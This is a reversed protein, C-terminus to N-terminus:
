TGKTSSSGTVRAKKCLHFWEVTHQKVLHTHLNLNVKDAILHPNLLLRVNAQEQLDCLNSCKNKQNTNNIVSM